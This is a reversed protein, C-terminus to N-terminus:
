PTAAIARPRLNTAAVPTVQLRWNYLTTPFPVAVTFEGRRTSPGFVIRGEEDLVDVRDNRTSERYMEPLMYKVIRAVDHWAVVLM